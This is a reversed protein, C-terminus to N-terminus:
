ASGAAAAEAQRAGLERVLVAAVGDVEPVGVISMHDGDLVEIQPPPEILRTWATRRDGPSGTHLHERAVVVVSRVEQRHPRYARMARVQDDPKSGHQRDEWFTRLLKWAHRAAGEAVESLHALPQGARMAKGIQFAFSRGLVAAHRLPHPYRSVPADLLLLLRTERGTQRLQRVMEYAVLGGYCHGALVYPGEPQIELVRSMLRAAVAEISCDKDSHEQVRDVLVCFPWDAGLAAALGVLNSGNSGASPICFVPPKGAQPAWSGLSSVFRPSVYALEPPLARPHSEKQGRKEMSKSLARSQMRITPADFFEMREVLGNGCGFEEQVATQLVVTALSDGGVDFFEDDLGVSQRNLVRCWIAQLRQEIEGPENTEGAVASRMGRASTMGLQAALRYRQPKGGPGKPIEELVALKAPVEHPRLREAAFRRLEDVELRKGRAAVAAGVEDGLVPHAVPFAVAEAVGPYELLVQEVVRPLVKEGGRNILEKLRGQLFLYGGEDLYGLDGTRFWDGDFAGVNPEEGGEYGSMVSAGRIQIEGTQGRGVLEGGAGVIRVEIGTPCGASGAKREGPPLPSSTIQPAAETMGYNELVPVGFALEARTLMAGPLSASGCRILRLRGPRAHQKREEARPVLATLMAPAAWFWTPGVEDFKEFFGAAHLGPDFYVASGAELAAAVLALGAIHHLRAMCLFRDEETLAMSARINATAAALNARTLPVRKPTGTTGSTQLVLVRDGPEPEAVEEGGEGAKCIEEVSLREVKSGARVGAPGGIRYDAKLFEFRKELEPASASALPMAIGSKMLALLTIVEDANGEVVFGVRSGREVGLRRLGRARRDLERRLEGHRLLRAGPGWLAHNRTIDGAGAKLIM